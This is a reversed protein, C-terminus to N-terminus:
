PTKIMIPEFVLKFCRIKCWLPWKLALFASKIRQNAKKIVGPISVATKNIFKLYKKLNYATAAMHMSKNAKNIGITNVKRLGMYEKLTGLVPEVISQRKAKIKNEGRNKIRAINRQYEGRYFTMTIRKQTAKGFCPVRLPCGDCTKDYLNYERQKHEGKYFVRVFPIIKAKPCIWHDQDEVYIFDKHTGKYNGHPPIFSHLGKADIFAYNPGSSYNGDALVDIWLLGFGNLRNQTRNVVHELNQSDKKDAHYAQVDTIIHHADDVCINNLYNLKTAKGPKTSIRADPDTPSYHTKNNVKIRDGPKSQAKAEKYTRGKIRPIEGSPEVDKQLKDENAVIAKDNQHQLQILHSELDQAPTKLELSDMSANAKVPASDMVQTHGSVMGASVCLGLIKTFVQEFVSEPYLGRTRSITSHWPLEEDIDYGLFYLIDLRLSCHCLLQRDSTINELYGVLCLKFFVVPDISKQGSKGYYPRTVLYLFDLDLVAKLRSYFNTQPVRDSLRFSLFLKEHYDKKGQM